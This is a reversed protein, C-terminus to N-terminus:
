MFNDTKGMEVVETETETAQIEDHEDQAIVVEKMKVRSLLMM